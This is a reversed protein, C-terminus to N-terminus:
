FELEPSVFFEDRAPVFRFGDVMPDPDMSTRVVEEFLPTKNVSEVVKIELGRAKAYALAKGHDVIEVTARQARYGIQGHPLRASKAGYHRKFSAADFPLHERIRSELWAVRKELKAMETVKHAMVMDVRRKTFAELGIIREQEAALKELLYDVRLEAGTLDEGEPLGALAEGVFAILEHDPPAVQKEEHQLAAIADRAGM